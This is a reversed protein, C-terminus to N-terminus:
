TDSADADTDTDAHAEDVPPEDPTAQPIARAVSAKAVRVETDEAVELLVTDGDEVETITGYLGGTTIVETGVTLKTILEQQSRRARRQPLIMFVYIAGFLVVIFLLISGSV